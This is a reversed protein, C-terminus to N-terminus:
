LDTRFFERGIIGAGAIAAGVGMEMWTPQFFGYIAYLVGIATTLTFATHPKM